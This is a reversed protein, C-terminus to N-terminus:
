KELLSKIYEVKAGLIERQMPNVTKTRNLISMGTKMEEMVQEIYSM